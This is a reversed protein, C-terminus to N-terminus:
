TPTQESPDSRGVFGAVRQHFAETDACRLFAQKERELHRELGEEAAEGVLAKIERVATPPLDLLHRAMAFTVEELVSPDAVCQVLGLSLAEEASLSDTLLLLQLARAAGLRRALHLSLGGDTSTGLKGYGVVFRAADSAVILDCAMALSFGAGAAAGQVSAVVPISLHRLKLILRNLAGILAEIFGDSKQLGEHIQVLNGGASFIRGTAQLVVARSKQSAEIDDLARTLGECFALDIANAQAENGLTIVALDDRSTLIINSQM